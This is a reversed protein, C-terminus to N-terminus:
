TLDLWALDLWTVDLWALDLWTVDLWALGLWTVDLWALGLWTPNILWCMPGRPALPWPGAVGAGGDAEELARRAGPGRGEAGPGHGEDVV